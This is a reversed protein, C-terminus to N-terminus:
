IVREIGDDGVFCPNFHTCVIEKDTKSEAAKQINWVSSVGVASIANSASFSEESCESTIFLYLSSIAAMLILVGYASLTISDAYFALSNLFPAGMLFFRGGTLLLMITVPRRAVPIFEATGGNTMVALSCAISIRGCVALGVMTWGGRSGMDNPAVAWSCVCCTGGIFLLLSMFGIKYKPKLVLLLGISTGIIEAGGAITTRSPLDTGGVSRFNLLGGYYTVITSIWIIQLFFIKLKPLPQPKTGNTAKKPGPISFDPPLKRGNCKAASKLIKEAQEMKGHAIFWRPSDPLAWFLFLFISTPVTIILQLNVWSRALENLWGLTLAGISWFHEYCVGLALKQWGDTVDVIIQFGASFMICASLGILYKLFCHIEYIPQLALAIGAVVQLAAGVLIVARPSIKKLLLFNVVGGCFIGFLYFSQVTNILKNRDCVLSWKTLITPRDVLFEFKKCEVLNRSEDTENYFSEYVYCPDFGNLYQKSKPHWKEIWEQPTWRNPDSRACFYTGGFTEPSSALFLISMMQWAAPIKVLAVLFLSRAQWPGFSGLATIVPDPQPM